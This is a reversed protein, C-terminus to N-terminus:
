FFYVIAIIIAILGVIMARAEALREPICREMRPPPAGPLPLTPLAKSKQDKSYAREWTEDWLERVGTFWEECSAFGDPKLVRSTAVTCVVGKNITGAKENIISEKNTTIMVQVPRKLNYAVQLCGTKLKLSAKEMNRHGEPYVIVHAHPRLRFWHEKFFDTLWERSLGRQRKFFWTHALLWAWFASCPVGFVVMMRSLYSGGGTLVTDMFFDTWSRHNSLVMLPDKSLPENDTLVRFKVEYRSLAWSTPGTPSSEGTVLMRLIEIFVYGQTAAWEKLFVYM